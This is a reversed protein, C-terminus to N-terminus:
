DEHNDGFLKIKQLDVWLNDYIFQRGHVSELNNFM